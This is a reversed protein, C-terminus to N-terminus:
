WNFTNTHISTNRSCLLTTFLALGVPLKPPPFSTFGYLSLTDCMGAMTFIGHAGSTLQKWSTFPGFGLKMLDMRMAKIVKVQKQIFPMALAFVRAGPNSRRCDGMISRQQGPHWLILKLQEGGRKKTTQSKEPLKNPQKKGQLVKCCGQLSRIHNLVRYDTKKGVMKTHKGGIALVNFRMVADHRDIAAGYEGKALHGANGVIACSKFNSAGALTPRPLARLLKIGPLANAAAASEAGCASVNKICAVIYRYLLQGM